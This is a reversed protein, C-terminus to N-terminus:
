GNGLGIGSKINRRGQLEIVRAESRQVAEHLHEIGLFAYHRETVKVSSHGLWNSVEEM